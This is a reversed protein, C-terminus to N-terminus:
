WDFRKVPLDEVPLWLIAGANNVLFDIRGFREVTKQVLNQIQEEFRIDTQVALGESGRAEIAKVTDFITGPTKPSSEVTKAGVAVKIGHEALKLAVAKGVGRSAGTIIAVKDKLSDEKM